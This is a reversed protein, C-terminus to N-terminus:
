RRGALHGRLSLRQGGLCDLQHRGRARYRRHLCILRWWARYSHWAHHPSAEHRAFSVSADGFSVQSTEDVPVLAFSEAVGTDFGVIRDITEQPAWLPIKAEPAEVDGYHRAHFLQWIDITHDPHRHSLFVGDLERYDMHSQLNSWTGGGMDIVWHGGDIQVLFGSAALDRTQYVGSCGLVTVTFSM